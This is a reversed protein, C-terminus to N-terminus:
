AESRIDLGVLVRETSSLDGIVRRLPFPKSVSPEEDVFKIRIM